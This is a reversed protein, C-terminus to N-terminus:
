PTATAEAVSPRPEAAAAERQPKRVPGVLLGRARHQAISRAVGLVLGGGAILGLPNGQLLAALAVGAGGVGVLFRAAPSMGLHSPQGSPPGQLEPVESASAHVELDDDISEVGPIRSIEALVRHADRRLIPGKLEICGGGKAVVKIVHPHPCVHGLRARVRAVLVDPDVDTDRRLLRSLRAPLASARHELDHAGIAAATEIDHVARGAKQRIIARRAGGRRPDFLFMLGAGLAIGYTLQRTSTM